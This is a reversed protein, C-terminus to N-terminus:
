ATLDLLSGKMELDAEIVRLSAQGDTRARIQEIAERSLDVERRDRADRTREANAEPRGVEPAAQATQVTNPDRAASRAVADASTELRKFAANLGALGSETANPIMTEEARRSLVDPARRGLKIPDGRAQLTEGLLAAAPGACPAASRAQYRARRHRPIAVRLPAAARLLRRARPAPEDASPRRQEGSRRRRQHERRRPEPQERGHRQDRGGERQVRHAGHGRSEHPPEDESEGVLQGEAAPEDLGQHM